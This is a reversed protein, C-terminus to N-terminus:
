EASGREASIPSTSVRRRLLPTLHLLWTTAKKANQLIWSVDHAFYEELLLTTFYDELLALTNSTKAVHKSVIARSTWTRGLHAEKEERSLSTFCLTSNGEATAKRRM